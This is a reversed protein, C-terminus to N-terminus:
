RDLDKSSLYPGMGYISSVGFSFSEIERVPDDPPIPPGKRLNEMDVRNSFECILNNKEYKTFAATAVAEEPFRALIASAIARRKM